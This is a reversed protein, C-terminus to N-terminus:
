VKLDRITLKCPNGRDVSSAALFKPAEEKLVKQDIVKGIILGPMIEPTRKENMHDKSSTVNDTKRAPVSVVVKGTLIHPYTYKKSSGVIAARDVIQKASDMAM